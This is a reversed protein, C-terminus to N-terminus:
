KRFYLGYKKRIKPHLFVTFADMLSFFSYFGDKIFHKIGRGSMSKVTNRIVRVLHKASSSNGSKFMLGKLRFFRKIAMLEASPIESVNVSIQEGFNVDAHEELTKLPTIKGGSVLQEYVKTGVIPTFLNFTLAAGDLDMALSVTEMIDEFTEDPFGLIFMVLPVIGAKLCFMVNSKVKDSNIGKGVSNLIRKSGSEVGYLLSRCGSKYLLEYDEAENVIGARLFGNWCTNLNSEIMMNCFERVEDLNAFMLDDTFDFGGAGHNDILYRMEEIVVEMPRKRRTSCHFTPNYCFSCKGTCGKSAYTTLMKDFGFSSQFYKEPEDILSWDLAPLASLDAFDRDPTRIYEGDKFYALGRIDDFPLGADFAEAMELWTFEGENICVYDAFGSELIEAPIVSALTGGWVVPIELKKAAKAVTIADNIFANAIVSIGIIDPNCRKLTEEAKEKTFFRDCIIAEHGKSKLLSAISLIGLPVSSARFSNEIQPYFFVARM